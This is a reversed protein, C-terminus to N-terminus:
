PVAQAVTTFAGSVLSLDTTADGCIADSITGRHHVGTIKYLQNFRKETLSTIQARQGVKVKPEFLIEVHVIVDELLPTNLLGSSSDIILVNDELCENDGLVHAKANDIFFAGGTIERLLDCTNGNYSNGRSTKGEVPAVSGPAIGFPRLDTIFDDVINQYPTGAPYQRQTTGNAFAFGADFGEIQTIYNNGERVTWAQIINGKLIEPINPGYGAQLSIQRFGVDELEYSIVDKRIKNRTAESLNYVRISFHNASSLYDRTIDFEITFPPRVTISDLKGKAEILLSYNRGFKIM